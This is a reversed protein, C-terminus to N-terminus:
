DAYVQLEAVYNIATYEFISQAVTNKERGRLRQSPWAKINICVVVRYPRLYERVHIIEFPRSLNLQIHTQLMYLEADTKCYYARVM